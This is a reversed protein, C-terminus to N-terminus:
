SFARRCLVWFCVPPLMKLCMLMKQRCSLPQALKNKLLEYACMKMSNREAVPQDVSVQEFALVDHSGSGDMGANVVRSIVPNLCEGGQTFISAAWYVAWTNNQGLYNGLLHSYFPFCNGLNFRYRDVLNMQRMLALADLNLKSWCKSWTAWGWCSMFHSRYIDGKVNLGPSWGAIHWVGEDFEFVKLQQNMYQLFDPSTVCDDEVVIVSEYQSTVANLGDIINRKLGWNKPREIINVFLFGTITALYDRVVKVAEREGDKNDRAGDSFIYLPTKDALANRQLAEVTQRTHDLRSHVFLALPANM